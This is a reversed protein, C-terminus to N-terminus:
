GAHQKADIADLCEGFLRMADRLAAVSLGCYGLILGPSPARKAYHHGIPYLGLGREHAYDVLANLQADNYDPLWAAVHMGAHSDAVRVRGKAYRNLGELMVERRTKLAKGVQRLHRDFGGNKMFNALAVQEITPSCMDSLYRANIFDTRLAAPPIVYGLRLSGFLVKSFTGVYIVRNGMDLSRLTALPESDYRFESDYDDELIWSKHSEAYRLLELRRPLSLASGTPFQHSPTVCILRPSRKPLASCILGEGDTPVLSINAGHATFVQWIGFYHPEEVAVIDKEDVVVRSTLDFAHQSGNVIVVEEPQVLMGRRRGVYACIQERLALLGQSETRQLRTYKAATALERGWAANIAPNTIPDGYQLNFRLAAHRLLYQPYRERVVRARQAYRSPPAITEPKPIPLRPTIQLANVRCGSGVVCRIYGEAHLQDYASLVTIRSIGLEEALARTSPLKSDPPLRGDLIGAKLARTLQAYAPGQGDLDLFM